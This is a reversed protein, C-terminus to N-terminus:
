GDQAEREEVVRITEELDSLHGYGRKGERDRWHDEFEGVFDLMDENHGQIGSVDRTSVM